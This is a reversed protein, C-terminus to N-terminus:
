AGRHCVSPSTQVRPTGHVALQLDRDSGNPNVTAFPGGRHIRNQVVGTNSYSNSFYIDPTGGAFIGAGGRLNLNKVGKYDFSIGRSSRTFATSATPTPSATAIRHLEPEAAVATYSDYLDARIGATVRLVPSITWDDQLGATYVGYRFNAATSQPDLTSRM